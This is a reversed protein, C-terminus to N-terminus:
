RDPPDLIRLARFDEWPQSTGDVKSWGNRTKTYISPKRRPQFIVWMGGAPNIGRQWEVQERVQKHLRQLAAHSAELGSLKEVARDRFAALERVIPKMSREPALPDQALRVLMWIKEATRLLDDDM